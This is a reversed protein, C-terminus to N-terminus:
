TAAKGIYYHAIDTYSRVVRPHVRGMDEVVNHLRNQDNHKQTYERPRYEGSPLQVPTKLALVM